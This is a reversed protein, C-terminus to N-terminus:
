LRLDILRFPKAVWLCLIDDSPLKPLPAFQGDIGRILMRLRFIAWDKWPVSFFLGSSGTTLDLGFDLSRVGSRDTAVDPFVGQFALFAPQYFFSSRKFIVILM